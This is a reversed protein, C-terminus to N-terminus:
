LKRYTLWFILGDCDDLYDINCEESIRCDEETARRFAVEINLCLSECATLNQVWFFSTLLLLCHVFFFFFFFFCHCTPFVAFYFDWPM